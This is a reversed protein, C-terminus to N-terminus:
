RFTLYLYVKYKKGKVTVVDLAAPNIHQEFEKLQLVIGIPSIKRNSKLAGIVHYGSKSASKILPTISDLCQCDM